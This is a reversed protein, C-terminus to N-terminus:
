CNYYGVWTFFLSDKFRIKRNEIKEIPVRAPLNDEVSKRSLLTISVEQTWADDYPCCYKHVRYYFRPLRKRKYASYVTSLSEGKNLIARFDDHLKKVAITSYLPSIFTKMSNSHLSLKFRFHRYRKQYVFPLLKSSPPM